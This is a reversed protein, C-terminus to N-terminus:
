RNDVLEPLYACLDAFQQAGFRHNDPDEIADVLAARVAAAGVPLRQFMATITAHTRDLQEQWFMHRAPVPSADRACLMDSYILCVSTLLQAPNTTTEAPAITIHPPPDDPGTNNAPTSTSRHAFLTAPCKIDPSRGIDASPPDKVLKLPERPQDALGTAAGNAAPITPSMWRDSLLPPDSTTWWTVPPLQPATAPDDYAVAYIEEVDTSSVTITAVHAIITGLAGASREDLPLGDPAAITFRTGPTRHSQTEGHGHASRKGTM